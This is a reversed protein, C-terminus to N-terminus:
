CEIYGYISINFTSYLCKKFAFIKGSSSIPFAPGVDAKGKGWIQRNAKELPTYHQKLLFDTKKFSKRSRYSIRDIVVATQKPLIRFFIVSISFTLIEIVFYITM